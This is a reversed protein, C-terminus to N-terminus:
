VLYKPFTLTTDIQRPAEATGDPRNVSIATLSTSVM